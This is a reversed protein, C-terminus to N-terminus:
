KNINHSQTIGVAFKFLQWNTAVAISAGTAFAFPSGIALAIVYPKIAKIVKSATGTSTTVPATESTLTNEM